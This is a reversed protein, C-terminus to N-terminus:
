KILKKSVSRARNKKPIQHKPNTQFKPNPIQSKTPSSAEPKEPFNEVGFGAEARGYFIKPTLISFCGMKISM